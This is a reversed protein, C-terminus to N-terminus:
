IKRVSASTLFSRAPKKATPNAAPTVTMACDAGGTVDAVAGRAPVDVGARGATAAPVQFTGRVGSPLGSKWPTQDFLLTVGIVRGVCHFSLFDSVSASTVSNFFRTECDM